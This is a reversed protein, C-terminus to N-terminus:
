LQITSVIVTTAPIIASVTTITSTKKLGCIIKSYQLHHRIFCRDAEKCFSCLKKTKSCRSFYCFPGNILVFVQIERESIWTQFAHLQSRGASHTWSKCWDLIFHLILPGTWVAQVCMLMERQDQKCPAPVDLTLSHSQGM